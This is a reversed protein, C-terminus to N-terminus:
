LYAQREYTTILLTLVGGEFFPQNSGFRFPAGRVFGDVEEVRVIDGTAARGLQRGANDAVDFLATRLARMGAHITERSFYGEGQQCRVLVSVDITTRYQDSRPEKPKSRRDGLVVAVPGTPGWLPPWGDLIDDYKPTALPWRMGAAAAQECAAMAVLGGTVGEPREWFSKPKAPQFQPEM